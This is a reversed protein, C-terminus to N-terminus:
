HLLYLFPKRTKITTIHLFLHLSHNRQPFLLGLQKRGRKCFAQFFLKFFTITLHNIISAVVGTDEGGLSAGGFTAGGVAARVAGTTGETGSEIPSLATAAGRFGNGKVSPTAPRDAEGKPNALKTEEFASVPVLEIRAPSLLKDPPPSVIPNGPAAGDFIELKNGDM